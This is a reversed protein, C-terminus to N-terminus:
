PQREVRKGLPEGGLQCLATLPQGPMQVLCVVRRGRAVRRLRQKAGEGGPGRLDPAAVDALRVRTLPGGPQTQLWITDGSAIDRVVGELRAIAGAPSWILLLLVVAAYKLTKSPM